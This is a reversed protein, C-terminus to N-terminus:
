KAGGEALAARGSDTLKLYAVGIVPMSLSVLGERIVECGALVDITEIEDSALPNADFTRLAYFHSDKLHSFRKM